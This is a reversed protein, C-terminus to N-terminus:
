SQASDLNGGLLRDRDALLQSVRNRLAVLVGLDSEKMSRLADPSLLGLVSECNSVTPIFDIQTDAELRALAHTLTGDGSRFVAFAKPDDMIRSLVRVSKAESLKPNGLEGDDGKEGKMWGYFERIEKQNVFKHQEDSWGLWERVNARKFVEEFYSYLTPEAYEGYEEDAKMQELALFARWLQNAERTSLGLSQAVEQPTKGTQRLENVMKAQQYPGWEKIGSVHRLGPLIWRATRPAKQEDLLLTEFTKFSGIESESITEKGAEHLEILWKLATVRRNGEIVVYKQPSGPIGNWTRVVLRDMPLFGLQKITDRLELVSFKPAKMKDYAAKQVKPEAFRAEPVQDISEGLEAFRPNNPDLLLDDLNVRIPSLFESLNEM